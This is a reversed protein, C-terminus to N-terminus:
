PQENTWGTEKIELPPLFKDEQPESETEKTDSATKEPEPTTGSATLLVESEGVESKNTQAFDIDTKESEESGDSATVPMMRMMGNYSTVLDGLSTVLPKQFIGQGYSTWVSNPSEVSIYSGYTKRDFFSDKHTIFLGKRFPFANYIDELNRTWVLSGDSAHVCRVNKKTSLLIKSGYKGAGTLSSNTTITWSQGTMLSFCVIRSGGAALMLVRDDLLQFLKLGSISDKFAISGTHKNIVTLNGSVTTVVCFDQIFFPKDSSVPEEFTWLEEGTHISHGTLTYTPDKLDTYGAICLMIESDANFNVLSKLAQHNWIANGDEVDLYYIGTRGSTVLLHENDVKIPEMIMPEQTATEWALELGPVKFARIMNSKDAVIVRDNFPKPQWGLVPLNVSKASIKGKSDTEFLNYNRKGKNGGLVIFRDNVQVPNSYIKTETWTTWVSPTEPQSGILHFAFIGLIVMIVGVTKKSM